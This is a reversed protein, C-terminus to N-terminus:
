LCFRVNSVNTALAKLFPAFGSVDAVQDFEDVVILIGDRAIKAEMMAHVVNTFVTDIKHAVIAPENVVENTKSGGLEM